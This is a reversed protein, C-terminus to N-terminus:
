QQARIRYPLVTLAAQSLDLKALKDFFRSGSAAATMTEEVSSGPLPALKTFDLPQGSAIVIVAEHNETHGPLPASVIKGEGSRPLSLGKRASLGLNLAKRNPYLRVVRNDAGWVFVAVHLAETASLEIRIPEMARLQDQGLEAEFKPRVKSGVKVVRASLSVKWGGDRDESPGTFSENAPIGRSLTWNLLRMGDADSRVDDIEPKKLGLAQAVVRARALNKAARKASEVGFVKSPVARASARYRIAGADQRLLRRPVWIQNISSSASAVVRGGDQLRVSLEMQHDDLWGLDGRLEYSGSPAVIRGGSGERAAELNAQGQLVELRRRFREKVVKQVRERMHETLASRQGTERDMIVAPSVDKPERQEDDAFDKWLSHGLKALTYEYPFYPFYLRDISFVAEPAFVDSGLRGGKGVPLAKCRLAIGGNRLGVDKCHVMVHVSREEWFKQFEENDTRERETQALKWVDLDRSFFEHKGDSVRAIASMIRDYLDDAVSGPIGTEPPGFPIMAVKEGEPIKGILAKALCEEACPGGRGQASAAEACLVLALALVALPRWSRVRDGAGSSPQRVRVTKKRRASRM